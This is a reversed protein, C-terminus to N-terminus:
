SLPHAAKRKFNSVMVELLGVFAYGVVLAANTLWRFAVLLDRASLAPTLGLAGATLLLVVLIVGSGIPATLAMRRFDSETEPARLWRVILLYIGYPPLAVAGVYAMFGFLIAVNDFGIVAFALAIVFTAVTFALPSWMARRYIDITTRAPRPRLRRVVGGIAELLLTGGAAVVSL